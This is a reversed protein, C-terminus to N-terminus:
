RWRGFGFFSQTLTKYKRIKRLEVFYNKIFELRRTDTNELEKRAKRREIILLIAFVIFLIGIFIILTGLIWALKSNAFLTGVGIFLAILSTTAFNSLLDRVEHSYAFEEVSSRSFNLLKLTNSVLLAVVTIIATLLLVVILWLIVVGIGSFLDIIPIKINAVAQTSDSSFQILPLAAAIFSYVAGAFSLLMVIASFIAMGVLKPRSKDKTLSYQLYPLRMKHLKGKRRARKILKYTHRSFNAKELSDDAIEEYNPVEPAVRDLKETITKEKEEM